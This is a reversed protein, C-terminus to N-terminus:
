FNKLLNELKIRRIHNLGNKIEIHDFNYDGNLKKAVCTKCGLIFIFYEENFMPHDIKIKDGVDFIKLKFLLDKFIDNKFDLNIPINFSIHYDIDKKFDYIQYSSLM